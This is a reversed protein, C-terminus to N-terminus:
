RQWENVGDRIRNRWVLNAVVVKYSGTGDSVKYNLTFTSTAKDFVCEGNKEITNASSSATNDMTVQGNENVNIVMQYPAGTQNMMGDTVVEDLMVTKMAIVNDLVIEGISNGSADFSTMTGTQDYDGEYHNIYKFVMVKTSLNANISDASTGVLKFPIAYIHEVAKPDNVFKVSDFTITVRGLISGAAIIFKSNNSLTYYDSPMLEYGLGDLSPDNILTPDITFEAWQESTNDLLGTLNIGVDLHLGEDKVATRHLVGEVNSGGDATSFAVASFTHDLRFDEYCSTMLSALLIIILIRKMDTKM